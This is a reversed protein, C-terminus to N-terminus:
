KLLNEQHIEIQKDKDMWIIQMLDIQEQTLSTQKLLKCTDSAQNDLPKYRLRGFEKNLLFKM